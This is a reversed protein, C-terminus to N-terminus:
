NGSSGSFGANTLPKAPQPPLRGFMDHHNHLALGIQKLNNLCSARAASERVSQVAPLLLGVIVGIVGIVIILEILSFGARRSCRFFPM